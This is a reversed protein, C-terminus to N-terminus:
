RQSMGAGRADYSVITPGSAQECASGRSADGDSTPCSLGRGRTRDGETADGNGHTVKSKRTNEM